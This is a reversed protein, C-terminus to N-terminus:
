KNESAWEGADSLDVTVNNTNTNSSDLNANSDADADATNNLNLSDGPTTVTAMTPVALSSLSQSAGGPERTTKEATPPSLTKSHGGTDQEEDEDAHGTKEAETEKIVRHDDVTLM